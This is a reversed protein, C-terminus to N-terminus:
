EDGEEKNEGKNPKPRLFYALVVLLAVVVAILVWPTSSGTSERLEFAYGGDNIDGDLSTVMYRIVYQGPPPPSPVEAKIIFESVFITEGIPIDKGERITALYIKANGDNVMESEFKLEIEDLESVTSAPEPTADLLTTHANASSTGWLTLISM